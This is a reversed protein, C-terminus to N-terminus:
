DALALAVAPATSVEAVVTDRLKQPDADRYGDNLFNCAVCVQLGCLPIKLDDVSRGCPEYLSQLLSGAAYKGNLWAKLERSPPPATAGNL